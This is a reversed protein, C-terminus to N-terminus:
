RPAQWRQLAADDSASAEVWDAKEGSAAIPRKWFPAKSKLYDMLMEAAAFAAQRHRSAAGVFVIQEGAQLRGVRHIV